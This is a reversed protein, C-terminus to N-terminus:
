QQEGNMIASESEIKDLQIPESGIEIRYNDMRYLSSPDCSKITSVCRHWLHILANVGQRRIMTCGYRPRCNSAKIVCHNVHITSSQSPLQHLQSAPGFWLLQTTLVSSYISTVVGFMDTICREIWSVIGPVKGLRRSCYGQM